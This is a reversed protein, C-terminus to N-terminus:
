EGATSHRVEDAVPIVSEHPATPKTAVFTYCIAGLSYAILRVSLFWLTARDPDTPDLLFRLSFTGTQELVSAPQILLTAALTAIGLPWIWRALNSPRIRQTVAGLLSAIVGSMIIEKVCGAMLTKPHYVRPVAAEVIATGLTATLV